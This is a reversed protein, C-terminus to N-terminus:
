RKSSSYSLWAWRRLQLTTLKTEVLTRSLYYLARERGESNEQACLAELLCEQAVIYLLLPKDPVPSGFVPPSLLYRIIYALRVQLGGLEKLSRPPPMEQIARVKAYDIEIGRYWVVFGLFKGLAINFACKLLNM